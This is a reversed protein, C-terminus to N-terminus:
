SPGFPCPIESGIADAVANAPGIMWNFAECANLENAQTIFFSGVIATMLALIAMVIIWMSRDM